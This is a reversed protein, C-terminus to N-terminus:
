EAPPRAAPAEDPWHGHLDFFERAEDESERAKDTRMYTALWVVAAVAIAATTFAYVADLAIAVLVLGAYRAAKQAFTRSTATDHVASIVGAVGDGARPSSRRWRM